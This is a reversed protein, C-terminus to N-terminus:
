SSHLNTALNEPIFLALNKSVARIIPNSPEMNEHVLPTRDVPCSQSHELAQSICVCCFTHLCTTATVPELFPSSNFHSLAKSIEMPMNTFVRVPLYSLEELLRLLIFCCFPHNNCVLHPSPRGVYTLEASHLNDMALLFPLFRLLVILPSYISQRALNERMVM